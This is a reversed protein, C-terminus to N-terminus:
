QIPPELRVNDLGIWTQGESVNYFEIGIKRGIAEPVDGATFRLTYEQMTDTLTVDQSAVPVRDGINDYFLIMHLTTAASTIRADVKLELVDWKTITHDTLQWLPPDGSM